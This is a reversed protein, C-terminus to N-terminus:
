DQVEHKGGWRDGPIYGVPCNIHLVGGARVVFNDEELYGHHVRICFVFRGFGAEVLAFCVPVCERGSELFEGGVVVREPAGHAHIGGYALKVVPCGEELVDYSSCCYLRGGYEDEGWLGLSPLGWLHFMHCCGHGTSAAPPLLRVQGVVMLVVMGESVLVESYYM